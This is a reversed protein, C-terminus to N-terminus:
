LEGGMLLMAEVDPLDWCHWYIGDPKQYEEWVLWSRFPHSFRSRIVTM